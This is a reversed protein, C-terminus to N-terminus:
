TINYCSRILYCELLLVRYVVALHVVVYLVAYLIIM